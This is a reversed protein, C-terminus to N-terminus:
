GRGGTVIIEAGDEVGQDIYSREERLVVRGYKFKLGIKGWRNSIEEMMNKCNHRPQVIMRIKQVPEGPKLGIRTTCIISIKSCKGSGNLKKNRRQNKETDLLIHDGDNLRLRKLTLRKDYEKLSIISCFLIEEEDSIIDLRDIIEESIKSLTMDEFAKVEIVTSDYLSSDDIGEALKLYIMRIRGERDSQIM